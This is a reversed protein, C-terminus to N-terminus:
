GDEKEFMIALDDQTLRACMQMPDEKLPREVINFSENTLLNNMGVDTRQYLSPYRQPLYDCLEELLEVAGEYAEPATKCCKPGREAIRKAKDAHFKAYHNDLEIWEDWQMNRLGMNIQYKPGYRFPRYPLPQTTHVDWKPYPAAAPRKFSSPPWEGPKRDAPKAVRYPPTGPPKELDPTRPRLVKASNRLRRVVLILIWVLVAATLFGYSVPKPDRLFRDIHSQAADRVHKLDCNARAWSELDEM